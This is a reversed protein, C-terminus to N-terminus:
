TTEETHQADPTPRVWGSAAQTKLPELNKAPMPREGDGVITFASWYYPHSLAATDMMAGQARRLAGAQTESGGSFMSTMLTVAAGSDVSWHSVILGRAGAYIFARTLGGLAEGGGSLGTRSAGASGAGGTDCAALVVLDADLRLNLVESADLLADSDGPGISTVLAPEPLCDGAQPLLGHTAFYIVKYQDLDDRGDVGVDTFDAGLVIDGPGAGFAQGVARVEGATEPLAKLGLLSERLPACFNAPGGRRAGRTLVSRFVRPDTQGLSPDGFGIFNRTAASVPFKRSQLFSAASVVLSMDRGRGLWAVGEYSTARGPRKRAAVLDISARDTVFTTAPLSILAADPEYIVHGAALIKDVVPGFLDTFLANSAALDFAPLYAETDMPGRLAAVRADVEPRALDIKWTRIESPTIALGFGGDSFLLVKLYIEDPRLSTQLDALDARLNVLQGYRPNASLLQAELNQAEQQLAGLTQGYRGRADEDYADRAQLGAVESEAIRIRRRTDELGRGLGASAADGQNLRAALRAVTDATAPSVVSQAADFFREQYLRAKAGDSDAADVLLKFYLSAADASAGLSGRAERFLEFARGYDAIAQPKDGDLAEARALEFLLVAEAASGAQGQRLLGLAAELRSRAAKTQGSKLDLLALDAETRTRLSLVAEPPLGRDLLALAADYATRAQKTENRAAHASGIIALSQADQAQLREALGVGSASLGRRDSDANLAKALGPGIVIGGGERIEVAQSTQGTQRHQRLVQRAKLGSQAAAIAEDFRRQNRLHLGRYNFALAALVEDKVAAIQSDAEALLADAEAFRGNNSVNLALNLTAEALERSPGAAGLEAVLAQFDTEAAGFRWVSNRAYGRERLKEPSRSAAEAAEALSVTASLGVRSSAASVASAAESPPDAAGLAVRLGAELIDAMQPFGEAAGFTAGLRARYVVSELDTEGSKCLALSVERLDAVQGPSRPACNLRTALDRAWASADNVKAAGDVDFAYIRGLTIDWGRCRVNWARAGRHQALPDDYQRVAECVAGSTASRGIPFIDGRAAAALSPGAPAAALVSAALGLPWTLRHRRQPRM